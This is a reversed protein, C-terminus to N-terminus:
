STSLGSDMAFLLFHNCLFFSRIAHFLSPLTRLVLFTYNDSMNHFFFSLECLPAYYFEFNLECVKFVTHLILFCYLFRPLTKATFNVIYECFVNVISVNLAINTVFLQIYYHDGIIEFRIM